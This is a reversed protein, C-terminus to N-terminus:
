GSAHRNLSVRAISIRQYPRGIKDGNEFVVLAAADPLVAVDSYAAAQEHVVIERPWTAGEDESLRLTLRQRRRGFSASRAKGVPSPHSFIWLPEADRQWVALGAHCQVDRLEDDDRLQQGDFVARRGRTSRFNFYVDGNRKEAMVFERIVNIGATDFDRIRQWTAGHDDSAFVCCQRLLRDNRRISYGGQILLRGSALQIGHVGNGTAASYVGRPYDLRIPKPETWTKGHDDSFQWHDIWGAEAMEAYTKTNTTQRADHDAPWFRCFKFIRDKKRDYVVPGSHIDTEDRAAIERIPGWTRGGDTSRRLVTTTDHGFDGRGKRDACFVLVTGDPLALIGPIRYEGKAAPKEFLTQSSLATAAVAAQLTSLALAIGMAIKLSPVISNM